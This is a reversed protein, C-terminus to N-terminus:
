KRVKEAKERASTLLKEFAVLQRVGGQAAHIVDPHAEVLADKGQHVFTVYEAMFRNWEQPAARSLADISLIFEPRVQM